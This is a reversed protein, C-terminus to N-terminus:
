KPVPPPYFVILRGDLRVTKFRVSASPFAPKLWNYFGLALRNAMRSAAPLTGAGRFTSTVQVRVGGALLSRMGAAETAAEDSPQLHQSARGFAIDSSDQETDPAALLSRRRASYQTINGITTGEAGAPVCLNAVCKTVLLCPLRPLGVLESCGGQLLGESAPAAFRALLQASCSPLLTSRASNPWM